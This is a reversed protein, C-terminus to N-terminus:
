FKLRESQASIFVSTAEMKDRAKVFKIIRPDSAHFVDATM